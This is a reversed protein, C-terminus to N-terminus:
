TIHSMDQKPGSVSTPFEGLIKHLADAYAPTGPDSSRRRDPNPAFCIRKRNRCSTRFWRRRPRVTSVFKAEHAVGAFGRAATCLSGPLPKVNPLAYWIEAVGAIEARHRM